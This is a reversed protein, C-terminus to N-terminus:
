LNGNGSCPQTLTEAATHAEGTLAINSSATYTVENDTKSSKVM